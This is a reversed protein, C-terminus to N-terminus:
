PHGESMASPASADTQANIAGPSNDAQLAKAGAEADDRGAILWTLHCVATQLRARVDDCAAILEAVSPPFTAALKIASCANAVVAPPFAKVEVEHCLTEVYTAPDHARLTPFADVTLGILLRAQGRDYAAQSAERLRDRLRVMTERDPLIKTRWLATELESQRVDDRWASTQIPEDRCTRALTELNHQRHAQKLATWEDFVNLHKTRVSRLAKGIEQPTARRNAQPRLAPVGGAAGTTTVDTM